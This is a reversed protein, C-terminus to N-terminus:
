IGCFRVRVGNPLEDFTRTAFRKNHGSGHRGNSFDTWASAVASVHADEMFEDIISDYENKDLWGYANRINRKVYDMEDYFHKPYTTHEYLFKLLHMQDAADIASSGGGLVIGTEVFTNFTKKRAIPVNRAVLEAKLANERESARDRQETETRVVDDCMKVYDDISVDTSFKEAFRIRNTISMHHLRNYVNIKEKVLKLGGKGNRIYDKTFTRTIDDLGSIKEIAVIRKELAISMSRRQLLVGGHKCMSVAAVNKPSFSRCIKKYTKHKYEHYPVYWLDDDTLKWLRKANTASIWSDDIYDDDFKKIAALVGEDHFIRKRDNWEKRVIYLAEKSVLSIQPLQTAPCIHALKELVLSGVVHM